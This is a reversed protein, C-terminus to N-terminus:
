RVEWIRYFFDLLTLADIDGTVSIASRARNPWRGIGILPAESSLVEDLLSAQDSPSLPGPRDVYLACAAADAVVEVVLGEEALFQRVAESRPSVGVVPRVPAEVVATTEVLTTFAGYWPVTSEGRVHRAWITADPDATTSVQWRGPGAPDVKVQFRQRRRWWDAVDRLQAIWVTPFKQRAARLLIALGERCIAGREPHLQLTLIDGRNYAIELLRVWVDGIATGSKIGLRDVLIEDDPMAVPIEVLRGRM